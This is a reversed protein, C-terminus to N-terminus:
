SATWVGPLPSIVWRRQSLFPRRRPHQRRSSVPLSFAAHLSAPHGKTPRSVPPTASRPPCASRVTRTSPTSWVKVMTITTFVSDPVSRRRTIRRTRSRSGRRSTIRRNPISVRSTTTSAARPFLSIKKTSRARSHLLRANPSGPTPISPPLSRSVRPKM